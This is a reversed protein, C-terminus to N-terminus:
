EVSSKGTERLALVPLEVVSFYTTKTRLRLNQRCRVAGNVEWGRECGGQEGIEVPGDFSSVEAHVRFAKTFVTLFKPREAARGVQCAVMSRLVIGDIYVAFERSAAPLSWTTKRPSIM